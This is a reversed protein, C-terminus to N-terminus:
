SAGLRELIATVEPGDDDRCDPESTRWIEYEMADLDGDAPVDNRKAKM